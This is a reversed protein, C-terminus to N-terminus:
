RHRSMVNRSLLIRLSPYGLIFTQLMWKLTNNRSIRLLNCLKLSYMSEGLHAILAFLNTAIFFSPFRVGLLELFKGSVGFQGFWHADYWTMFNILLAVPVLIWWMLHPSKFFDNM